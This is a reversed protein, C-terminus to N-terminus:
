HRGHDKEGQGQRTKFGIRFHPDGDTQANHHGHHGEKDQQGRKHDKVVLAM